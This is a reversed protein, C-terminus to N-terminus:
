ESLDIWMAPRVGYFDFFVYNGQGYVYGVAGVASADAPNLGPSRLWWKCNGTELDLDIKGSMAYDTPQCKMLSIDKCYQETESISLLFIKDQTDTGPDTSFTPNKDASVTTTAIVSLDEETFASSLFTDNLWTRLTCTEWSSSLFLSNYPQCDLAYKSLALVKNDERTLVLWQIDESGNDKKNDQEYTGLIFCDGPQALKLKQVLYTHYIDNARKQSDRYSKLSVFTDYAKIYNNDAIANEASSYLIGPIIVLTLLVAVALIGAIVAAVILGTRKGQKKEKEM